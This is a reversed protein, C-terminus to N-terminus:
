AGRPPSARSILAGQMKRHFLPSGIITGAMAVVLLWSLPNGTDLEEGARVVALGLLLSGIVSTETLVRWSTWRSDRSLVVAIAGAEVLFSAMIRGTLPTLEWPWIDIALQPAAFFVAGAIVMAAGCILAGSTISSPVEADPSEPRGDDAGRNLLWLGGVLFPSAIYVIVWAYFSIAAMAPADGQNFRDFHIFTAILMLTAFAVIGPFAASVRHWSSTRASRLFFYVGAGYASGLFMPSMEPVITWAFLEDTRGPDVYLLLVAAALVAAVFLCVWRTAPVPQGGEM